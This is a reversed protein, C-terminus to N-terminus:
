RRDPRRARGSKASGPALRRDLGRARMDASPAGARPRGFSWRRELRTRWACPLEAARPLADIERAARIRAAPSPAQRTRQAKPHRRSPARRRWTARGAYHPDAVIDRISYIKSAPVDAKDMAALVEDPSRARTWAEIEGDLWQQRLARGDNQALSADRALDDREMALCLRKFISDGNAAILVFSGDSCLYASTPAIGPLISGTRERVVGFADFEPLLSEM